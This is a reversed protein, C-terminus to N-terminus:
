IRQLLGWVSKFAKSVYYAIIKVAFRFTLLIALVTMITAILWISKHFFDILKDGSDVKVPKIVEVGSSENYLRESASLGDSGRFIDANIMPKGPGILIALTWFSLALIWAIKCARKGFRGDIGKKEPVYTILDNEKKM